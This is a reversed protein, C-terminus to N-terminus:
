SIQRKRQSHIDAPRRPHHQGNDQEAPPYATITAWM